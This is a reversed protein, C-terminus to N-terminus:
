QEEMREKPSWLVSLNIAISSEEPRIQAEVEALDEFLREYITRLQEQGGREPIRFTLSRVFADDSEDVFRAKVTNFTNEILHNLGDIKSLFGDEYLRSESRSLTLLENSEGPRRVVRGQEILAAVADKVEDEEFEGALLQCIRQESIPEGWILYEIRRPLGYNKEADLFNQRLKTSLQSVKRSGIDLHTAIQKLTLGRERLVQYYAVEAWKRSEVSPMKVWAAMKMPLMMLSYVVRQHQEAHDM